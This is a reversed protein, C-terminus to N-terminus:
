TFIAILLANLEIYIVLSRVKGKTKDSQKEAASAANSFEASSKKAEEDDAGEHGVKSEEEMDAMTPGKTNNQFQTMSRKVLVAAASLGVVTPVAVLMLSATYIFNSNNHHKHPPRDGIDTSNDSGIDQLLHSPHTPTAAEAIQRMLSLLVVLACIFSARRTM